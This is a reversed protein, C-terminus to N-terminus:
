ELAGPIFNSLNEKVVEVVLRMMIQMDIDDFLFRGSVRLRQWGGGAQQRTCTDLCTNLVYESDETSMKAIAEVLPGFALLTDPDDFSPAKSVQSM